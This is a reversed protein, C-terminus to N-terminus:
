GGLLAELILSPHDAPPSQETDSLLGVRCLERLQFSVQLVRLRASLHDIAILSPDRHTM